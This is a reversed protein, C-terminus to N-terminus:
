RSASVDTWTWLQIVSDVMTDFTVDSILLLGGVALVQDPKEALLLVKFPSHKIHGREENLRAVSFVAFPGTVDLVEVQDFILIGVTIPLQKHDQDPDMKNKNKIQNLM